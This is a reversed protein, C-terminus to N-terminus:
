TGPAKRVLRFLQKGDSETPPMVKLMDVSVERVRGAGKTDRIKLRDGQAEVVTCVGFAFHDVLDGESPM